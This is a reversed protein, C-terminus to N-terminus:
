SHFQCDVIDSSIMFIGKQPLVEQLKYVDTM